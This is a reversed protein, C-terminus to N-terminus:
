ESPGASQESMAIHIAHLEAKRAEDKKKFYLNTWYTLIGLVIGVLAAIEQLTLVGLVFTFGNFFYSMLSPRDTM